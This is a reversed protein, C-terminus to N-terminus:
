TTAFIGVEFEIPEEETEKLSISSHSVNGSTLEPSIVLVGFSLVDFVSIGSVLLMSLWICFSIWYFLLAETDFLLVVVETPFM